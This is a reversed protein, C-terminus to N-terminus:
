TCSVTPNAVVTNGGADVACQLNRIYPDDAPVEQYYESRPNSITIFRSSVPGAPVFQLAVDYGWLRKPAGYYTISEGGAPATATPEWVNAKQDFPGTASTSFNLQFFGGSIKMDTNALAWFELFRPFNHLGGNSQGGRSPVVGAVLLANVTTSSAGILDNRRFGNLGSTGLTLLNGTISQREGRFGGNRWIKVPSALSDGQNSFGANFTPDYGDYPNERFLTPTRISVPLTRFSAPSGGTPRLSNQYSSTGGAVGTPRPLMFADAVSGDIFNDSLIGVADGVIEVPRWADNNSAAKAFLTSRDTRDEYFNEDTINGSAGTGTLLQDFEERAAGLGSQHLNFDGKIFIINDSIFSLGATVTPLRNLTEGNSLRFGYPKRMPDAFYDVPKPSIYSDLNGVERRLPPDFEAGVTFQMLCSTDTIDTSCATWDNQAAATQATASDTPNYNRFPRVIADERRADERFAYVIGGTASPTNPAIWNSTSVSSDVLTTTALDIDIELSRSNLMERGDMFGKDLFLTSTPAGGINITNSSSATPTTRPSTWSAPAQPTLAIGTMETNSLSLYTFSSNANEVYEDSGPVGDADVGDDIYLEDIPQPISGVGTGLHNHDVAPFLYFLSPFQPNGANVFPPVATSSSPIDLGGALAALRLFKREENQNTPAAGMGFYNFFDGAVGNNSIRVTGPGPLIGPLPIPSIAINQGTAVTHPGYRVSYASTLASNTFGYQRDRQIQYKLHFVRALQAIRKQDATASPQDALTQLTSVYAHPSTPLDFTNSFSVHGSSFPDKLDPITIAGVAAELDDLDTATLTFNEVERINSSLMGLTCAATHLYSQDAPSLDAYSKNALNSSSTFTASPDPQPAAPDILRRLHSFDGWMAMTPYPHIHEDQTPTFSPAGGLPDGAFYALNRLAKKLGSNTNNYDTAFQTENGSPPAYEWGNTGFGDFFDIDRVTGGPLTNFSTSREITKATGPHAAMSMCMLPFDGGDPGTAHYVAMSQVAALGDRLSLRHLRISQDARVTSPTSSLDLSLSQSYPYLPDIDIDSVTGAGKWVTPNGLELREGGIIRMGERIAQREWYGDLGSSEDALAVQTDPIMTGISVGNGGDADSLRIRSNYAPKPGYRDDARYLDDLFPVTPNPDDLVRANNTIASNIWDAAREWTGRNRHTSVDATFIQIPDLAVDSPRSTSEEDVSDVAASLQMSGHSDITGNNWDITPNGDGPGYTDPGIKGVVFQGQFDSESKTAMTIESAAVDPYLCSNYASILNLNPSSGIFVSGETHMAGNWVFEVTSFPYLELDNKFWAGWKNGRVAQRVQQFELTSVTRNVPNENTVFVNIQFNKLLNVNDLAEWGPNNADRTDTGAVDGVVPCANGATATDIPANRNVLAQAKDNDAPDDIDSVTSSGPKAQADDMIVSYVIIETPRGSADTDITGDGDIDSAFSWANDLEPDGNLNLRTEDPLTYPADNEPTSSSGPLPSNNSGGSELNEINKMMAQLKNSTPLGGPFRVDRSFMYEIKAKARDIAPTAAGVIVEQERQAIVAQTRSFSRFSITAATLTMMLLLLVTTPLVFGAQSSRTPKNILFLSRLIGSMFRDSLRKFDSRPPRSKRSRTQKDASM